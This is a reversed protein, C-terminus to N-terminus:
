LGKKNQVKPPNSMKTSRKLKGKLCSKKEEPNQMQLSTHTNRLQFHAELTVNWSLAVVRLSIRLHVACIEAQKSVETLLKITCILHRKRQTNHKSTFQCTALNYHTALPLITENQTMNSNNCLWFDIKKYSFQDRVKSTNVAGKEKKETRSKNM